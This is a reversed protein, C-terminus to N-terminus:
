DDTENDRLGFRRRIEELSYRILVPLGSPTVYPNQTAFLGDVLSAMRDADLPSNLPVAAARAYARAVRKHMEDAAVEDRARRGGESLGGALSQLLAPPEDAPVG